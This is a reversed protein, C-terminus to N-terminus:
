LDKYAIWIGQCLTKFCKLSFRRKPTFVLFFNNTCLCPDELPHCSVSFVGSIQIEISYLSEIKLVPDVRTFYQPPCRPRYLLKQRFFFNIILKVSAAQPLRKLQEVKKRFHCSSFSLTRFVGSGNKARFPQFLSRNPM